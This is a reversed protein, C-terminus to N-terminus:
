APLCHDASMQIQSGLRRALKGTQGDCLVVQYVPGRSMDANSSKGRTVDDPWGSCYFAFTAGDPSFAVSTIRRDWGTARWDQFNRLLTGSAIDWLQM